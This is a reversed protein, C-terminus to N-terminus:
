HGTAAIFILGGVAIAMFLIPLFADWFKIPM